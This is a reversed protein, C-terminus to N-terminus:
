IIHQQKKGSPRERASMGFESRLDNRASCDHGAKAVVCVNSPSGRTPHLRLIIAKMNVDM